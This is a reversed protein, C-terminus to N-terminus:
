STKATFCKQLFFEMMSTSQPELYTVPEFYLVENRKEIYEM